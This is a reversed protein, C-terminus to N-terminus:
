NLQLCKTITLCIRHAILLSKKAPPYVKKIMQYDTSLQKKFQQLKRILGALNTRGTKKAGIINQSHQRYLVTPTSIYIIKGYKAVNLAIWWDHLRAQPPIPISIEVAKRNIMAACGTVVNRYILKKLDNGTDPCIKNHNWLSDAIPKLEADVVKLDTHVLLPMNPYNKESARMANLTLDIKNPLWIDDQDSFMVYNGAAQELLKGFNLAPGLRGSSDEILRIKDSYKAVYDKIIKVTDDSSGDDRISLQWDRNSQALISDIQQKLYKEGNYTALLIDIM